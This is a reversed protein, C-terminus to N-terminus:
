YRSCVNSLVTQYDEGAFGASNLDLVANTLTSDSEVPSSEFEDGIAYFSTQGNGCTYILKHAGNQVAIRNEVMGGFTESLIYDREVTGGTLLPELSIGDINTSDAPVPIGALDLVTPYMDVFHAMANSSRATIGPGSIVFPVHIAGNNVSGKVKNDDYPLATARPPGNDGVFIVYTNELEAPDINALVMDLARYVSYVMARLKEQDSSADNVTSDYGELFADAPVHFPTHPAVLALWMFWPKSQANAWETAEDVFTQTIYTNQVGVDQGNQTKQWSDYSSNGSLAGNFYGSYTDCGLLGPHEYREYDQGAENGGYAAGKSVHWKGFCGTAYGSAGLVELFTQSESSLGPDQNGIAAGIGTRFNYQGTLLNSRSPSCTNSSWANTFATGTSLFSEYGPTSNPGESTRGAFGNIYTKYIDAADNGIGMDDAIILIFNPATSPNISSGSGEPVCGFELDWNQYDGQATGREQYCGDEDQDETATPYVSETAAGTCDSSAYDLRVGQCGASGMLCGGSPGCGTYQFSGNGRNGFCQDFPYHKWVGNWFVPTLRNEARLPVAADHFLPL